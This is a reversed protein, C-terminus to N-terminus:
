VFVGVCMVPIRLVWAGIFSHVYACPSGYVCRSRKGGFWYVCRVDVETVAGSWYVTVVSVGTRRFRVLRGGRGRVYWTRCARRFISRSTRETKGTWPVTSDRRTRPIGAVLLGDLVSIRTDSLRLLIRDKFYWPLFSSANWKQWHHAADLVCPEFSLSVAKSRMPSDAMSSHNAWNMFATASLGNVRRCSVAPRSNPRTKCDLTALSWRM